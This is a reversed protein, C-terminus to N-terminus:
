FLFKLGLQIIRQSGIQGIIQGFGSSGVTTNPGALNTHAFANFFEARFELERQESKIPFHKLLAADINWSGPMPIINRGSNGFHGVQNPAFASPNFYEARREADSRGSSLRWNGVIDARDDGQGTLSNDPNSSMVSGYGGSQFSNIGSLGWNDLIQKAVPNNFNMLKSLSPTHYAYSLVLMHRHDLDSNAWDCKLCTPDQTSNSAINIYFTSQDDLNHSWSYNGQLTLGHYEHTRVQFQFANYSSTATDTFVGIQGYINPSGAPLAMNLVRRSDENGPTSLPDGTIPDNGPIYVAPNIDPMWPLRRGDNGVYAASVVVGGALQQELTLNYEYVMSNKPHLGTFYQWGIPYKSTFDYNRELAPPPYYNSGPFGATSYGQVVRTMSNTGFPPGVSDSFRQAPMEDFIGFGGRLATKGTGFVDWAAGLRPAFNTKDAFSGNKPIGADGAYVFGPPANSFIRSQVGPDWQVIGTTKTGDSLAYQITPAWYPAYQYRLGLNLVLRRSVKFDDQIYTAWSAQYYNTEAPSSIIAFTDGLMFDALANGTPSGLFGSWFVGQDNNSANTYRSAHRYEVGMKLSHGGRIYNVKDMAQYDDSNAAGWSGRSAFERGTIWTGPRDSLSFSPWNPDLDHMNPGVKGSIGDLSRIRTYGFRFDNLLGPGLIHTDSVILNSIIGSNSQQSPGTVNVYPLGTSYGGRGYPLFSGTYDRFLSATLRNNTKVQYDGKILYQHNLTPASDAAYYTPASNPQATNPLPIMGLMKMFVPDFRESPIKNSPFPENTTPDKPSTPDVVLDSFDGQREAATPLAQGSTVLVTAIRLWQATGFLFLKDKGNFLGPIYAPGGVTFGFQNQNLFPKDPHGFGQSALYSNRNFEFASGHIQNTGSKTVVNMVGGPLRGSDAGYDSTMFRFEQLADPNPYNLASDYGTGAFEGGDLNYQTQHWRNGNVSLTAGGGDINDTMMSATGLHIPINYAQVGNTLQALGVPNRGNLPLERIQGGETLMGTETTQTNAVVPAAKVEIEQSVSGVELTPNVGAIQNVELVIGTQAYKKFGSMEVTLNYNGVPLSTFVYGGVKDTVAERTYGTQVERAMVKAGAIVAGSQDSVTGRMGALVDQSWAPPALLVTLTAGVLLWRFVRLKSAMALGGKRSYTYKTGV